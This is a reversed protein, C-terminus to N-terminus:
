PYTAKPGGQTVQKRPARSQQQLDSRKSDGVVFLAHAASAEEMKWAPVRLALPFAYSATRILASRLLWLPAFLAIHRPTTNAKTEEKRENKNIPM